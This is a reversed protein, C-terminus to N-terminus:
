AAIAPISTESYGQHSFLHFAAELIADRGRGEQTAGHARVKQRHANDRISSDLM